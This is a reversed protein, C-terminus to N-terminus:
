IICNCSHRPSTIVRRYIIYNNTISNGAYSAIRKIFACFQCTHCYWICYSAYSVMRKLIATTQCTHCYSICYGAYSIRCKRIAITQCTHCYWIGYSVYSDTRKRTTTTQYLYGDVAVSNNCLCICATKVQIM